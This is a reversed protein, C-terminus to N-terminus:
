YGGKENESKKASSRGVTGEECGVLGCNRAFWHLAGSIVCNKGVGKDGTEIIGATNVGAGGGGGFLDTQSHYLLFFPIM